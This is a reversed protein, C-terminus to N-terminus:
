ATRSATSPTPAPMLEGIKVWLGKIKGLLGWIDTVRALAEVIAFAEPISIEKIARNSFDNIMVVRGDDDPRPRCVVFKMVSVMRDPKLLLAFFEREDLTDKGALDGIVDTVLEQWGEIDGLTIPVVQVDRDGVRVVQAKPWLRESGGSSIEEVVQKM